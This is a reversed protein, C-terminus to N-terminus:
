SAIPFFASSSYPSTPSRRALAPLEFTTAKPHAHHLRHHALSISLSSGVGDFAAGLRALWAPGSHPIWSGWLQITAQGLFAATPIALARGGLAVCALQVALTLGWGLRIRRRRAPHTESEGRRFLEIWSPLGGALAGLWTRQAGEGELDRPSLPHAHHFLHMRRVAHGSVGLVAASVDLLVDNWARPLGLTGHLADHMASFTGFFLVLAAAAAVLTNPALALAVAPLGVNVAHLLLSRTKM